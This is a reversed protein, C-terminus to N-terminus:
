TNSLSNIQAQLATLQAQLEEVTPTQAVYPVIAALRITEAEADTIQVSGAPLYFEHETLDLWHLKNELDKYHPM